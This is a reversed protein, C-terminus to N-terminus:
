YCTKGEVIFEETKVTINKISAVPFWQGKDDRLLTSETDLYSKIINESLFSHESGMFFAVYGTRTITRNSYEPISTEVSAVSKGVNYSKFKPKEKKKFGFM